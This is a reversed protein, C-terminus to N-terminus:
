STRAARLAGIAELMTVLGHARERHDFGLFITLLRPRTVTLLIGGTQDAHHHLMRGSQDHDIAADAHLVHHLLACQLLRALQALARVHTAALHDASIEHKCGSDHEGLVIRAAHAARQTSQEAAGFTAYKARDSASQLELLRLGAHQ